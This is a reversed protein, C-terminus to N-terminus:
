EEPRALIQQVSRRTEETIAASGCLRVANFGFKLGEYNDRPGTCAAQMAPLDIPEPQLKDIVAAHKALDNRLDAADIGMSRLAGGTKSDVDETMDMAQMALSALGAEGYFTERIKEYAAQKEDHFLKLPCIVACDGCEPTTM